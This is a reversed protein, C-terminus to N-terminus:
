SPDGLRSTVSLFWDELSTRVEQLGYVGIDARVLRRNLDAVDQRPKRLSLLRELVDLLRRAARQFDRRAVPDSGIPQQRPELVEQLFAGLDLDM